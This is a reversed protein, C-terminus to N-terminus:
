HGTIAWAQREAKVTGGNNAAQDILLGLYHDQLADRLGYFGEGGGAYEATKLLCTGIAIEEDSLHGPALPNTYVWEAGALYGKHYFGELNGGHGADQRALTLHIPTRYDQLFRVDLNNIEGREGRILIRESRIWSFYQDGTFDFVGHKDGFDLQAITQPSPNITEEAPMEDKWPGAVIPTAFSRATVTAEELGIGLFKRMLSIGHYGHAASVQAQTVAGLKGSAIVALRAAHQPQLHYQEAVQVRAGQADAWLANMAALDPAPPTEALTVVGRGALERILIPTVAWPVSTVVFAPRDALLDDLMTTTKIGWRTAFAEAKAPTHAQVGTVRFREPLAQAVRLYFEARWGAGIIAFEITNM